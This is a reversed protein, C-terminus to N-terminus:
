LNSIKAFIIIQTFNDSHVKCITQIRGVSGDTLMVISDNIKSKRCYANSTYRINKCIIKKYRECYNVIYHLCNKEEPTLIYKEGKGLLLCNNVNSLYKLNKGISLNCFKNVNESM